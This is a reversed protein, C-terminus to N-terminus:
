RLLKIFNVSMRNSTDSPDKVTFVAWHLSRIIDRGLFLYMNLITM